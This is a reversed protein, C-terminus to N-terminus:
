GFISAVIKQRIHKLRHAATAHSIEIGQSHMEIAIDRLSFGSLWLKLLRREVEDLQQAAEKLLLASEIHQVDELPDPAPSAVNKVEDLSVFQTPKTKIFLRRAENLVVTLSYARPNDIERAGRRQTYDLLRMIASQCVDEAASAPLDYKRVARRAFHLADRQFEPDTALRRIEHQSPTLDDDASNM